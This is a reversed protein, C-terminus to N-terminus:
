LAILINQQYSCVSLLTESINPKSFHRPESMWSATMGQVHCSEEPGTQLLLQRLAIEVPRMSLRHSDVTFVHSLFVLM